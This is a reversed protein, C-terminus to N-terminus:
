ELDSLSAMVVESYQHVVILDLSMLSIKHPMGVKTIVEQRSLSFSGEFM